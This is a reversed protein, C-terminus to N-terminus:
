KQCIKVQQQQQVNHKQMLQMSNNCVTNSCVTDNGTTNNSCMTNNYHQQAKAHCTTACHTTTVQQQTTAHYSIVCPQEFKNNYQQM